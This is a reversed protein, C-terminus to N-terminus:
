RSRATSSSSAPPTEVLYANVFFGTQPSQYTHVAAGLAGGSPSPTSAEEGAARRAALPMGAFAPIGIGLTKLLTRRDM